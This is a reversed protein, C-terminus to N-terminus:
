EEFNNRKLKSNVYQAGIAGGIMGFITNTLFNNFIITFSYLLSFGTTEIETKMSGMLDIVQQKLAADFPLSDMTQILENYTLVLDNSKTVLTIFIEFLSTFVAAFVGTLLGLVIGKSIGIKNESGTSKQYLTVSFFGALPILLCCAFSKLLPVIQLVGVAFGPVLAPLIKKM